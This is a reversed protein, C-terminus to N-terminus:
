QKLSVELTFDADTLGDAGVVGIVVSYPNQIANFTITRSEDQTKGRKPYDWKHEAECAVCKALKDPLTYQGKGIQYGYISINKTKDTPRVTVTLISRPPMDVAYLVHNGTFKQQQTGPFCAISSSWAWSLDAIKVGNKLSGEASVTENGAVELKNVKTQSNQGYFSATMITLIFITGLIIKM